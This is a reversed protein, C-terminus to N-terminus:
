VGTSCRTSAALVARRDPPRVHRVRAPRGLRQAARGQARGGRLVEASARAGSRRARAPEVSRSSRTRAVADGAQARGRGAARRGRRVGAGARTAARRLVAGEPARARRTASTRAPDRAGARRRGRRLGLGRPVAALAGAPRRAASTRARRARAATTPGLSAAACATWPAVARAPDRGARALHGVIARVREAEDALEALPSTSADTSPAPRELLRARRRRAHEDSVEARQIFFVHLGKDRPEAFLLARAPRATAARRARGGPLLGRRRRSSQTSSRACTPRTSAWASPTPRSSSTSTAACSAGSRRPASARPGPGRPLRLVEIGLAEGLAGALTARDAARTGAYVIAPRAGDDRWRPPSRARAQRAPTACPM